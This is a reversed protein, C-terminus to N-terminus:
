HKRLLEAKQAQFEAESLIGRDRLAALKELEDAVSSPPPSDSPLIAMEAPAPPLLKVSKACQMSVLDFEKGDGIDVFKVSGEDSMVVVFASRGVYGGMRNRANVQGCTWYGTVRAQLAPKWQGWLFGYPWEFQASSPDILRARVAAEADRRFRGWKPGSSAYSTEGSAWGETRKVLAAHDNGRGVAAFMAEDRHLITLAQTRLQPVLGAVDVMSSLFDYELLALQEKSPKPSGYATCRLRLERYHHGIESLSGITQLCKRYDGKAIADYTTLLAEYLPRTNRCPVTYQQKEGARNLVLVASDTPAKARLLETIQTAKQGSTSVGDISEITDGVRLPAAYPGVAYVIGGDYFTVGLGCRDKPEGASRM